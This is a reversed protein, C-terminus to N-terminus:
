FRLGSFSDYVPLMVAAMLFLLLLGLAVTLAPELLRLLAQLQTQVEQDYFTALQFLMRDLAGASEGVSIMRLMLPPFVHTAAFSATLAQGAEVRLYVEHLAQSMARQQLLPQCWQLAQLLPIGTQYMLGLFRCLRALVLQQWLRGIVPLKLVWRDWKLAMEPMRRLLIVVLFITLFILGMLWGGYNQVVCSLRLLLQTTWPLQQGLSQLFTAMQPVLFTLMVYAAVLVMLCVIAPYTMGQRIQTHLASQWALTRALHGFIEPLQGTQEGAEVLQSFWLPFVMPQAQFAQSLLKGAELDHAVTRLAMMMRDHESQEALDSIAQLLPIGAQLLQELQVCFGLLLQRSIRAQFWRIPQRLKYSLLELGQQLLARELAFEDAAYMLGRQRHGGKDIALFRYRNM